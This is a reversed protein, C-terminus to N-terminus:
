FLHYLLFLLIAKKNSCVNQKWNLDWYPFLLLSLHAWIAHNWWLWDWQAKCCCTWIKMLLFVLYKFFFGAYFVFKLNILSIGICVDACLCVWVYWCKNLCLYIVDGRMYVWIVICVCAHTVQQGYWYYYYVNQIFKEM